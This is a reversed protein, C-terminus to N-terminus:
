WSHNDISYFLTLSLRRILFFSFASVMGRKMERTACKKIREKEERWEWGWEEGRGVFGNRVEERCEELREEVVKM